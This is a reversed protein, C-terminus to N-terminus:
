EYKWQYGKYSPRRGSACATIGSLTYGLERAAQRVGTFSRVVVGNKIMQIKKSLPHKSGFVGKSWASRGLKHFSYANNYQRTCWELNLVNNNERDGDKHNIEPLNDKNPLFTLAVLRHVRYPYSKGNKHLNVQLYGDKNKCQSLFKEKVIRNAHNPQNELKREVSKILGTDSAQYMGKWNPIDKWVM